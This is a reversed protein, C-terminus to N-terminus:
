DSTFWSLYRSCAKKKKIMKKAIEIEFKDRLPNVGGLEPLPQEGYYTPDVDTGGTLILGDLYDVVKNIYTELSDNPLIFPVIEEYKMVSKIVDYSVNCFYSDNSNRIGSSIGIIKSM